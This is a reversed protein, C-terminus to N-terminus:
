CIVQSSDALTHGRRFNFPCAIVTKLVQPQLKCGVGGGGAALSVRRSIFNNHPLFWIRVFEYLNFSLRAKIIKICCNKELLAIETSKKASLLRSTSKKVKKEAEATDMNVSVLVIQFKSWFNEVCFHILCAFVM